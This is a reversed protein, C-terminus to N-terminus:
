QLNSGIIEQSNKPYHTHLLSTKGTELFSPRYSYCRSKQLTVGNKLFRQSQCPVKLAEGMGDNTEQFGNNCSTEASDATLVPGSYRMRYASCYKFGVKCQFFTLNLRSQRRKKKKKKAVTATQPWAHSISIPTSCTLTQISQSM